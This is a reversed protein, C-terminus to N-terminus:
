PYIPDGMLRGWTLPTRAKKPPALRWFKLGEKGEMLPLQQIVGPEESEHSRVFSPDRRDGM